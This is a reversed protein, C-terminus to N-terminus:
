VPHYDTDNQRLVDKVRSGKNMVLKHDVLNNLSIRPGQFVSLKFSIEVWAQNAKGFTHLLLRMWFYKTPFFTVHIDLSNNDQLNQSSSMWVPTLTSVWIVHRLLHCDYQLTYLWYSLHAKQSFVYQSPHFAKYLKCLYPYMSCIQWFELVLCMDPESCAFVDFAFVECNCRTLKVREAFMYSVSNTTQYQYTFHNHLM